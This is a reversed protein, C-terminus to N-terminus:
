AMTILKYKTGAGFKNYLDFLVTTATATVDGNTGSKGFYTSEKYFGTSYFITGNLTVGIIEKFSGYPLDDNKATLVLFQKPIEGLSHTLTTERATTDSTFTFEDIAMKTFGFMEPSIKQEIPIGMIDKLSELAKNHGQLITKNSM